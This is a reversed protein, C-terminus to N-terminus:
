LRINPNPTRRNFARGDRSSRMALRPTPSRDDEARDCSVGDDGGLGPSRGGSGTEGVVEMSLVPELLVLMGGGRRM